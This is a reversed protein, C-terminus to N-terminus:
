EKFHAKIKKATTKSIGKVKSLKKISAKELDEMSQFGAEYLIVAKSKGIGKIETFEKVAGDMAPTTLLQIRKQVRESDPKLEEAKRYSEIAEENRSLEFLVDGRRIWDLYNDPSREIMEDYCILAEDWSMVSEFVDVKNRIAAVNDPDLELVRNLSELSAPWKELRRYMTGRGLLAQINDPDRVLIKDYLEIADKFDKNTSCDIAKAMLKQNERKISHLWEAASANNPNVELAERFSNVADLEREMPMLVEGRKVWA